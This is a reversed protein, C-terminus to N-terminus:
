GVENRSDGTGGGGGRYTHPPFHEELVSSWTVNKAKEAKKRAAAEKEVKKRAAAEKEKAMKAEELAELAAVRRAKEDEVKQNGCEWGKKVFMEMTNQIEHIAIPQNSCTPENSASTDSDLSDCVLFIKRQSLLLGLNQVNDLTGTVSYDESETYVVMKTPNECTENVYLEVANVPSMTRVTTGTCQKLVVIEGEVEFFLSDDNVGTINLHSMARHNRKFHMDVYADWHACSPIQPMKDKKGKKKSWVQWEGRASAYKTKQVLLEFCVKRIEQHLIAPENEVLGDRVNSLYKYDGFSMNIDCKRRKIVYLAWIYGFLDTMLTQLHIPFAPNQAKLEDLVVLLGLSKANVVPVSM